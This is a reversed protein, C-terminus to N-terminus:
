LFDPSVDGQCFRGFVPQDIVANSFVITDAEMSVPFIYRLKGISCQTEPLLQELKTQCFANFQEAPFRLYLLVAGLTMTYAILSCFLLPRNRFPNM